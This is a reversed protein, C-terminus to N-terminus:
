LAERRTCPGRDPAWISFAWCEFSHWVVEEIDGGVFQPGGPHAGHPCERVYSNYPMGHDSVSGRTVNETWRGHEPCVFTTIRAYQCTV